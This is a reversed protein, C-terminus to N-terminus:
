LGYNGIVNRTIQVTDNTSMQVESSILKGNKVPLKFIYNSGSVHADFNLLSENKSIYQPLKINSLNNPIKSFASFNIELPLIQSIEVPINLGISYFAQRKINLQYNFQYINLKDKINNEFNGTIFISDLSPLEFKINSSILKKEGEFLLEQKQYIEEGFATFSTSIKPLEGVSFSASYSDLYLNSIEYYQNGDYAFFKLMPNSGTFSFIFDDQVFSRDFSVKVEQPANVNLSSKASGLLFDESFSLQKQITLNNVGDIEIFSGLQPTGSYYYIKYSTPDNTM